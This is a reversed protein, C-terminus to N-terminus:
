GFSQSAALKESIWGTFVGAAKSHASHPSTVLYFAEKPIYGAGPLALLREERVLDGTNSEWGLMVGQGSLAAQTAQVYNSFSRGPFQNQPLGMLQFYDRWTLWTADSSVVHLLTATQLSERSTIRHALAPSFVPVVKEDFLKITDGDNWNGRGYRILLDIGPAMEPSAVTTLVNVAIDPFEQYFEAVRPMLWYTATGVTCAVTLASETSSQLAKGKEIADTIRELGDTVGLKLLEGATTLSVPRTSRDFLRFGIFDELARIGQSVAPQTVNLDGAAKQTSGTRTVADFVALLRLPPLSPRM